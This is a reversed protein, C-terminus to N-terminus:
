LFYDSFDDKRAQKKVKLFIILLFRSVAYVPFHNCISPFISDGKMETDQFAYLGLVKSM